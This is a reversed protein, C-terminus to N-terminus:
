NKKRIRKKKEFLTDPMPEQNVFKFIYKQFTPTSMGAIKAAKTLSCNGNLFEACAESFKDINRTKVGKAM